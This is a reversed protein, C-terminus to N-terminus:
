VLIFKTESIGDFLLAEGYMVGHIYSEGILRNQSGQLSGKRLVFPVAGGHFLCIEDGIKAEYPVMGVYGRKTICFRGNSLRQAFTAATTWYKWGEQRNDQPKHLFNVLDQVSGIPSFGKAWNFVKNGEQVQIIDIDFPAMDDSCPTLANGIPVKLKLDKAQEGTPYGKVCAKDIMGYLINVVSIIDKENTTTPCLRSISDFRVGIVELKNPSNPLSRTQPATTGSTCFRGRAGHWTSITKRHERGTWKPIWSCFDYSKSAGSKYLLEMANGRLVFENAYRRVVTELTSSYDPNFVEDAADLSIGLLAFLKDHEQTADTHAFKELLNLLCFDRSLKVNRLMRRTTGLAYAPNTSTIFHRLPLHSLPQTSIRKLCTELAIFIDGWSLDWTGCIVRVRSALVLEQIVWVRRFWDREFFKVIDEWINDTLSPINGTWTFPVRPLSKPWVAPRMVLTRIQLLTRMVIDSGDSENGIWAIVQTARRFIDQMLRIQIAKEYGDTQNICIADAWVLIATEEDRIQKLASNLSAMLLFMGEATGLKYPRLPVGWVYSIASYPGASDLNTHLIKGELPEDGTGPFLRLLRIERFQLENYSYELDNQVNTQSYDLNGPSIGLVDTKSSSKRSTGVVENGQIYIAPPLRNFTAKYQSESTLSLLGDVHLQWPDVLIAIEPDTRVNCIRILVFVERPTPNRKIEM